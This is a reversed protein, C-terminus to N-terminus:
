RKRRSQLKIEATLARELSDLRATWFDRSKVLWEAAEDLPKPDLTLYHDRGLVQRRV